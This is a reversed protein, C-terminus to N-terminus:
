PKSSLDGRGSDLDVPVSLHEETILWQGNIKRYCDTVRSTLRLQSGDRATAIVPQISHSYALTGDTVISLDRVEFEIPGPYAEFFGQWDKRYAASGVYQRPPSVDFVFLDSGPAYVRMVADLDRARYAAAFRDELARIQQEDTPAPRPAGAHLMSLALGAVLSRAPMGMPM